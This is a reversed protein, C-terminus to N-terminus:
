VVIEGIDNNNVLSAMTQNTTWPLRSAPLPINPTLEFLLSSAFFCSFHQTDQMPSFNIIRGIFRDWKRSPTDSRIITKHAFGQLINASSYRDILSSGGWRDLHPAEEQSASDLLIVITITCPNLCPYLQFFLWDRTWGGWFRMQVLLVGDVEEAM